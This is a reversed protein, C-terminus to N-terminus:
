TRHQDLEQIERATAALARFRGEARRVEDRGGGGSLTLEALAKRADRMTLLLTNLKADEQELQTQLGASEVRYAAAAAVRDALRWLAEATVQSEQSLRSTVADPVGAGDAVAVSRELELVERAVEIISAGVPWDPMTKELYSLLERDRGARELNRLIAAVRGTSGMQTPVSDTAPQSVHLAWLDYPIFRWALWLLVSGITTENVRGLMPVVEPALTFPNRQFRLLANLLLRATASIRSDAALSRLQKMRRHRDRNDLFEAARVRSSGLWGTRSARRYWVLGAVVVLSLIVALLFLILILLAFLKM